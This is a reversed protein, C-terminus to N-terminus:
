AYKGQMTYFRELPGWYLPGVLPQDDQSSLRYALEMDSQDRTDNSFLALPFTEGDTFFVNFEYVVSGGMGIEGKLVCKRENGAYRFSNVLDILIQIDEKETVSVTSCDFVQDASYLDIRSVLGADFDLVDIAGGGWGWIWFGLSLAVVM